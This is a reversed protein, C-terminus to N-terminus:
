LRHTVDVGAARGWMRGRADAKQKGDPGVERRLCSRKWISLRCERKLLRSAGVANEAKITNCIRPTQAPILIYIPHAHSQLM